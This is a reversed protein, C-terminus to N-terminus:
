SVGCALNWFAANLDDCVDVFTWNLIEDDLVNTIGFVFPHLQSVRKALRGLTSSHQATTTKLAKQALARIRLPKEDTYM